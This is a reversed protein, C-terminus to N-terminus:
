NGQQLTKKVINYWSELSFVDTNECPAPYCGGKDGCKVAGIIGDDPM